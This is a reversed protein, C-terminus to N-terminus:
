LNESRNVLYNFGNEFIDLTLFSLYAEQKMVKELPKNGSLNSRNKNAILKTAM